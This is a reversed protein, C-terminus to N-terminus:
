DWQLDDKQLTYQLKQVKRLLDLHANRKTEMVATAPPSAGDNRRASRSTTTPPPARITTVVEIEQPGIKLRGGTHHPSTHLPSRATSPPSETEVKMHHRIMAIQKGKAEMKKFLHALELEDNKRISESTEQKIRNSLDQHNSFFYIFIKFNRKQFGQMNFIITVGFHSFNKHLQCIILEINKQGILNVNLYFHMM